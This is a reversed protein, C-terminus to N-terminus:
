ILCWHVWRFIQIILFLGRKSRLYKMSSVWINTETSTVRYIENLEDGFAYKLKGERIYKTTLLVCCFEITSRLNWICILWTELLSRSADENWLEPFFSFSRDVFYSIIFLLALRRPFHARLSHVNLTVLIERNLILVTGSCSCANSTRSQKEERRLVCMVLVHM